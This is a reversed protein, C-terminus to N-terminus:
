RAPRNLRQRRNREWWSRWKKQEKGFDQGTIGRLAKEAENDVFFCEGSCFLFFQGQAQVKTEVGGSPSVMKALTQDALLDILQPVASVARRGMEGLSGAAEFRAFPSASYLALVKERVSAPTDSPIEEKPTMNLLSGNGLVVSATKPAESSAVTPRMSAILLVCIRTISLSRM